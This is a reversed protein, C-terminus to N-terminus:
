VYFCIFFVCSWEVIFLMCFFYICCMLDNLCFVGLVFFGNVGVWNEWLWDFLFFNLWYRDNIYLLWLIGLFIKLDVEDGNLFDVFLCKVLLVNLFCVDLIFVFCGFM